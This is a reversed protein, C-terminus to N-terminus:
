YIPQTLCGMECPVICLWFLPGSLAACLAKCALACFIGGQALQVLLLLLLLRMMKTIVNINDLM